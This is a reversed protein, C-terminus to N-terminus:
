MSLLGALDFMGVMRFPSSIFLAKASIAVMSWLLLVVLSGALGIFGVMMGDGLTCPLAVGIAFVCVGGGLTCRAGLTIGRVLVVPASGLTCGTSRDVSDGDGVDEGFCFAECGGGM